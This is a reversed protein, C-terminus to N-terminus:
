CGSLLVLGLRNENRSLEAMQLHLLISLVSAEANNSGLFRTAESMPDNWAGLKM